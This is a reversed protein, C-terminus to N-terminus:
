KLTAIAKRIKPLDADFKSSEGGAQVRIIKSGMGGRVFVTLLYTRKVGSQENTFLMERGTLGSTTKTPQESKLTYGLSRLVHNRSTKAVFDLKADKPNDITDVSIASADASLAKYDLGYVDDLEQYGAPTEIKSAVCGALLLASILITMPKM